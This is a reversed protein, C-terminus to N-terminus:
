DQVEGEVDFDLTLLWSNKIDTRRTGDHHRSHSVADSFPCGNATDDGDGNGYVRVRECERAEVEEMTAWM